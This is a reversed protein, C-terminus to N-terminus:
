RNLGLVVNGASSSADIRNPSAPDRRLGQDRVEGASTSAEIAYVADPVRVTVPGASSRARLSRPPEIASVNVAGASSSARIVPASVGVATVSGASSSLEIASAEAGQVDVRGGSSRLRLPGETRVGTAVVDGGRTRVSVATGAPVAIRYDTGCHGNHLAPCRSSLALAGDGARAARREPEWLGRTVKQEVRLRTGEPAPVLVVEGADVEVDLTRVGAYQEVPLTTTDRLAVGLLSWAVGAVFALVLLGGLLHLLPRLPAPRPGPVAHSSM